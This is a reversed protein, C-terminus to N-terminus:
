ALYPAVQRNAGIAAGRADFISIPRKELDAFLLGGRRSDTARSSYDTTGGTSSPYHDRSAYWGARRSHVHSACWALFTNSASLSLGSIAHGLIPVELQSSYSKPPFTSTAEHQRRM